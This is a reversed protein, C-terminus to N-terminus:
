DSRCQIMLSRRYVSSFFPLLKQVTRNFVPNQNDLSTTLEILEHVIRGSQEYDIKPDDYFVGWLRSLEPFRKPNQCAIQLVFEESHNIGSSLDDAFMDFGMKRQTRFKLSLRSRKELNKPAKILISKSSM